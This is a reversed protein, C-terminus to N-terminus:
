DRKIAVEYFFRDSPMINVAVMLLRRGTSFYKRTIELAASGAVAELREAMAADIITARIEQRIETLSEGSQQEVLLFLATRMTRPLTLVPDLRADLYVDTWCRPPEDGDTRRMCSLHLWEHGTRCGLHAALKGRAVIIRSSLFSLESGEAIEVLDTASLASYSFRRPAQKADVRTGVGKRPSVLGSQRLQGIAQRVTQRSVGHRAALDIETPLLSGVGYTGSRIAEELTRALLLYRPTAGTKAEAAAEPRNPVPVNM